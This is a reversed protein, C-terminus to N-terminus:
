RRGGALGAAEPSRRLRYMALIGLFPGVALPAFAWRWGLLDVFHPMLHITALTLLFGLSTQVTLMTGILERPSLEVISASFQASDAIAAVGWVLCLALLLWTPADLLLGALLCCTGSVAMATMTVATRGLRDALVGAVLSGAAGAAITAFTALRAGADNGAFHVQMFAGLWAWMAYLEWMHGLYGLNALRVPRNTWIALAQRPDFPPARGLRPGTRAFGIGVAALLAVASCAALAPRWAVDGVANVLHPTASGLTLAGVLLGVLLGTDDTAWSAVIKMGVPYIGAMCTGTAFRLAVVGWSDAPVALIALNALAALVTAAAFFRRPELRDALGFFASGLTGAVFGAQVASTYLSQMQASLAVERLLSPLVATASFWLAMAAVQCLAVIGVAVAKERGGPRM